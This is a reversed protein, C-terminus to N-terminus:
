DTTPISSGRSTSSWRQQSLHGDIKTSRRRSLWPSWLSSRRTCLLILHCLPIFSCASLYRPYRFCFQCFVSRSIKNSFINTGREESSNILYVYGLCFEGKEWTRPCSTGQYSLYGVPGSAVAAVAGRSIQSWINWLVVKTTLPKRYKIRVKPHSQTM